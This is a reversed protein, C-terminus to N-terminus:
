KFLGVVSVITGLLGTVVGLVNWIPSTWVSAAAAPPPASRSPPGGYGDQMPPPGYPSDPSMPPAGPSQPRPAPAPAPTTSRQRKSRAGVVSFAVVLLSIVLLVIFLPSQM